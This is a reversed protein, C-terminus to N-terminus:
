QKAIRRQGSDKKSTAVVDTANVPHVLLV